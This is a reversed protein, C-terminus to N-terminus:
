DFSFRDYGGTHDGVQRGNVWVVTQWDVAGFHLLVNQGAWSEDLRFTRRYWLREDRTLRKMVGSLASEIPFPILISETFESPRPADKATVAYQWLGNLNQWDKRVLQPRPYERHINEPSVDKAWRTNLPGSAPKWPQSQAAAGSTIALLALWAGILSKMSFSGRLSTTDPRSRYSLM